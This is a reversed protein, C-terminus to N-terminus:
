ASEESKALMDPLFINDLGCGYTECIKVLQVANPFTTYTERNQLTKLSIGLAEAAEAQSMEKNVRLAKLKVKFM